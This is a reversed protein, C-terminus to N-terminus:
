VKAARPTIELMMDNGDEDKQPNRVCVTALRAATTSFTRRLLRASSAYPLTRLQRKGTTSRSSTSLHRTADGPIWRPILFELPTASSTPITGHTQNALSLFTRATFATKACHLPAMILKFPCWGIICSASVFKHYRPADKRSYRPPGQRMTRPGGATM